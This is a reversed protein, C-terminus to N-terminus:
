APRRVVATILLQYDPDRTGFASRPLAHRPLGYLFAAAARVNGHTEVTVCDAPVVEEFLRRLSLDTFSWFQGWRDHDYRSIQTIGPVTVLLHGGPRLLRVAHRAAGRVDFIFPLTQTLIFCDVLGEGLGAGTALDGVLDAGDKATAHLTMARRVRDGGFRRTYTSDAVELVDGHILERRADLFREIYHRDVPTGRDFGFRRSAPTRPLALGLWLTKASWRAM